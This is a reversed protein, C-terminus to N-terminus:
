RVERDYSLASFFKTHAWGLRRTGTMYPQIHTYGENLDIPPKGIPIRTELGFIAQDFFWFGNATDHRIGLVAQGPGWRHNWGNNFPNPVFPTLGFLLQDYDTVDYRVELPIRIFEESRVDSFKPQFDLSLNRRMLNTPLVTDFFDTVDNVDDQVHSVITRSDGPAAWLPIAFFALALSSAVSVLSSSRITFRSSM